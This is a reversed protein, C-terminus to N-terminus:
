KLGCGAARFRILHVDGFLVGLGLNNGSRTFNDVALCVDDILELLTLEYEPGQDARQGREEGEASLNRITVIGWM